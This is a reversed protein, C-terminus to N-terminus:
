RYLAHKLVPLVDAARGQSFILEWRGVQMTEGFRIGQSAATEVSGRLSTLMAQSNIPMGHSVGHRTVYEVMHKTANPHVWFRGESSALEFSHPIVTGPKATQTVKIADWVTGGGKPVGGWGGVGFGLEAAGGNEWRCDARGGVPIAPDEIVAASVLYRVDIQSASAVSPGSVAQLGLSLLLLALAALLPSRPLQLRLPPM